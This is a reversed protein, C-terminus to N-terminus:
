YEHRGWECTYMDDSAIYQRFQPGDAKSQGNIDAATLSCATHHRPQLALLAPCIASEACYMANLATLVSM